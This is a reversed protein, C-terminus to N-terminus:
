TIINKPVSELIIKLILLQMHEIHVISTEYWLQLILHHMSNSYYTLIGESDEIVVRITPIAFTNPAAANLAAVAAANAGTLTLTFDEPRELAIRDVRILTQIGAPVTADDITVSRSGFPVTFDANAGEVAISIPQLM